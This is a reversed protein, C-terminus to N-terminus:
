ETIGGSKFKLYEIADPKNPFDSSFKWPHNNEENVEASRLIKGSIEQTQWEITEGKTTASGSPINFMVRAFMIARYFTKGDVQHAEIIGVGLEQSAMDDDYILETATKGDAYQVEKEKINLILKATNNSLDGTTLSLTGSQFTGGDTEAIEDDLYLNNSDSADIEASYEAMKENVAADSYTVKSGDSSYKSLLLYSLGKKAM